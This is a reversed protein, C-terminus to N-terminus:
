RRCYNSSSCRAAKSTCNYKNNSNVTQQVKVPHIRKKVTTSQIHSKEKGDKEITERETIPISLQIRSKVPVKVPIKIQISKTKFFGYINVFKLTIKEYFYLPNLWCLNFLLVVTKFLGG